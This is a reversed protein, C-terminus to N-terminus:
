AFVVKPMEVRLGTEREFLDRLNEVYVDTHHSLQSPGGNKVITRIQERKYFTVNYTDTAQDLEIRCAGAKGIPLKFTLDGAAGFSFNKAGTMIQFRRSGLQELITRAIRENDEM